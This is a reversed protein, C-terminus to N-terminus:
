SWRLQGCQCQRMSSSKDVMRWIPKGCNACEFVGLADECAQLLKEAEAPEVNETHSGRNGWSLLLGDAHELMALGATDVIAYKGDFKKLRKKGDAILRELFQHAERHDNKEGRRYPLTLELSEAILACETDMIKRAENAAIDPRVFLHKRAEEFNTASDSWRIGVTPNEYPLLRKFRWDSKGLQHRLEAYWERDHTLLIIQRDSFKAKLVEAVMGRHERDFSVVVDDLFLPQDKASDALAMALFICLGLGNRYGESLTLRPSPQDVGYFKLGIDISKESDEPVYLHVNEIALGPHLFKWLTKVDDSIRDIIDTSRHRIEERIAKEVANLYVVLATAAKLRNRWVRSELLEQIVEAKGKDAVLDKVDAPANASSSRAAEVLPVVSDEIVQIDQEALTTRLAEISFQAVQDLAEKKGTAVQIERWAKLEPRALTRKVLAISDCLLGKQAKLANFDKLVDELKKREAEVHSQFEKVAIDRGCSPCPVEVEDSLADVFSRTKVLVDLREAILVEGSDALKSAAQRVLAIQNEVLLQGMELLLSHITREASLADIRKTLAKILLECKEKDSEAVDDQCYKEFLQTLQTLIEEPSADGFTNKRKANVLGISVKLADIGVHNHVSRALSRINTAAIELNSLGLLPLLASYKDGKTGHIFHAVENQRLVIAPYNWGLVEARGDGTASANGDPKITVEFSTGDLLEVKVVSNAGAPSHTNRISRIQRTGSYEHSLHAIKGKHTLYEIGDVFSSKGSGNKGYVVISKGGTDLSAADSSGRFWSIGIAKLKM